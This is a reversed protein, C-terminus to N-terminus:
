ASLIRKLPMDPHWNMQRFDFNQERQSLKVPYQTPLPSIQNSHTKPHASILPSLPSASPHHGPVSNQGKPISSTTNVQRVRQAPRIVELNDVENIKQLVRLDELRDGRTQESRVTCLPGVDQKLLVERDREYKPWNRTMGVTSKSKEDQINWRSPLKPNEPVVLLVTPEQSLYYLRNLAIRNDMEKLRINIWEPLDQEKRKYLSRLSVIHDEPKLTVLNQIGLHEAFKRCQEGVRLTAQVLDSEPIPKLSSCPSPISTLVSEVKHKPDSAQYSPTHPPSTDVRLQHLNKGYKTNTPSASLPTVCVQKRPETYPAYFRTKSRDSTINPQRPGSSPITSTVISKASSTCMSPVMIPATRFCPNAKYRTNPSNEVTDPGLLVRRIQGVHRRIIHMEQASLMNTLLRDAHLKTLATYQSILSAGEKIQQVTLKDDNMDLRANRSSSESM